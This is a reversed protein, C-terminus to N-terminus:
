SCLGPVELVRPGSPFAHESGGQCRLNGGWGRRKSRGPNPRPHPHPAYELIVVSLQGLTEIM